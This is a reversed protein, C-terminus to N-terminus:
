RFDNPFLAICAFVCLLTVISTLHSVRFLRIAGDSIGLIRHSKPAFVIKLLPWCMAPAHQYFWLRRIKAASPDDSERMGNDIVGAAFITAWISGIGVFIALVTVGSNKDIKLFLIVAIVFAVMWFVLLIRSLAYLRSDLAAPNSVRLTM